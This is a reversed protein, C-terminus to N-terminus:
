KGEIWLGIAVGTLLAGIFVLHDSRESRLRDLKEAEAASAAVAPPTSAPPTSAPPTTEGDAQGSATFGGHARWVAPGSPSRRPPDCVFSDQQMHVPYGYVIGNIIM